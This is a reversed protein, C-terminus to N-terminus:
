SVSCRTEMWYLDGYRGTSSRFGDPGAQGADMAGDAMAGPLSTLPVDATVALRVDRETRTLTVRARSGAGAVVELLPDTMRRRLEVPMPAASGGRVALDVILGHRQLEDLGAGLEQVLPDEGAQSEALLRRVRAAAVLCRHHLQEHPEVPSGTALQRLLPGIAARVLEVRRRRDADLAQAVEEASALLRRRRVAQATRTANRQLEFASFILILQPGAVVCARTLLAAVNAPTVASYVGLVVLSVATPLALAVVVLWNPRETSLLFVFWGFSAFAWNLGGTQSEVPLALAVVATCFACVAILALATPRDDAHRALRVGSVVWVCAVLALAFLNGIPLQYEYWRGVAFPGYLVVLVFGVGAWCTWRLRSAIDVM